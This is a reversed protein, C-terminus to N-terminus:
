SGPIAMWAVKTRGGRETAFGWAGCTLYHVIHLGRGRDSLVASLANLGGGRCEPAPGYPAAAPFVPVTPLHPDTDAVECTLRAATFRLRVEYPGPAHVLANTALESVALVADDLAEAGYGLQELACRLATRVRPVADPTDSTWRWLVRVVDQRRTPRSTMTAGRERRAARSRRAPPARAWRTRVHM